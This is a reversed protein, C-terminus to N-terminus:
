KGVVVDDITKAIQILLNAWLLLLMTTDAKETLLALIARSSAYQVQILWVRIEVEAKQLTKNLTLM